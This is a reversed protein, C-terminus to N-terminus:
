RQRKGKPTKADKKGIVLFSPGEQQAEAEGLGVNAVRKEVGASKPNKQSTPPLYKQCVGKKKQDLCSKVGGVGSIHHKM